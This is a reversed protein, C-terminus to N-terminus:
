THGTAEASARHRHERFWAITRELGTEFDIAPVYGLVDRALSIDALSTRAEGVRPSLHQPVLTEGLLRSLADVLENITRSSGTGINIALGAAREATAAAITADVANEVHTFDRSATGDGFITPPEGRLIAEVFRPVVAAYASRPDQREGFVNFYRLAVTELGYVRSVVLCYQEAALKSVPYPAVPAVSGSERRPMGPANGYVSSSSAAVVRRVGHDRSALLVNLTGDVNIANSTLPDDLSRPISPLAAQHFVVEVGRTATSAREFSRVDGEILEVDSGPLNSRQGTSLNDLVRVEHGEELLRLTLNSGIFGAGGTVLARM